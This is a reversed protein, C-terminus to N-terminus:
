RRSAIPVAQSSTLCLKRSLRELVYKQAHTAQQIARELEDVSRKAPAISLLMEAAKQEIMAINYM